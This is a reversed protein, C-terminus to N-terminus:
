RSLFSTFDIYKFWQARPQELSKFACRDPFLWSRIDDPHGSASYDVYTALLQGTKVDRVSREDRVIQVNLVLQVTGRSETTLLGGFFLRRHLGEQTEFPRSSRDIQRVSEKTLKGVSEKNQSFWQEQLVYAKFGADKACLSRHVILVPIHNWFVPLYVALFGLLAFASAKGLSGGNSRGGRWAWRVVLWMVALYLAAVCFVVLGFM